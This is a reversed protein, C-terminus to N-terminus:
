TLGEGRGQNTLFRAPGDNAQVVLSKEAKMIGAKPLLCMAM